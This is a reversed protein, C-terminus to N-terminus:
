TSEKLATEVRGAATSPVDLIVKVGLDALVKFLKGAQVREGGREVKGLFNESVGMNGAADDQRLRRSKRVARVVKGLQFTDQVIVKM